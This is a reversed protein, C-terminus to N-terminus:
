QLTRRPRQKKHALYGQVNSLCWPRYANFTKEQLRKLPQTRVHCVLPPVRTHARHQFTALKRVHDNNSVLGRTKMDAM